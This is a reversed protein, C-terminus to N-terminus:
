FLGFDKLFVELEQSVVYRDRQPDSNTWLAELSWKQPAYKGVPLFKVRIGELFLSIKEKLLRAGTYIPSLSTHGTLPLILNLM